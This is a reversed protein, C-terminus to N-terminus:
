GTASGFVVTYTAQNNDTVQEGPVPNVLVELQTETGPQPLNTIPVRVQETDGAALENITGVLEDGNLTVTVKISGEDSEGQNQVQVDIEKSDDPVTTASDATLTTDGVTTQL